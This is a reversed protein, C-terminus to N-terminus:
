KSDDVVEIVFPASILTEIFLKWENAAEISNWFRTVLLNNNDNIDRHFVGDTLGKTTMESAKNLIATEDDKSIVVVGQPWHLITKIM